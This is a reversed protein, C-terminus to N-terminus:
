VGVSGVVDKGGEGCGEIGSRSVTVPDGNADGLEYLALCLKPVRLGYANLGALGAGM